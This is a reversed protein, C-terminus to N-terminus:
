TFILYSDNALASWNDTTISFHEVNFLLQKVQAKFIAFKEPSIIKTLKQRTPLKFKDDSKFVFNVFHENDVLILPQNTCVIFQFLPNLQIHILNSM